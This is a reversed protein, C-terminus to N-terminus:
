DCPLPTNEINFFSNNRYSFHWWETRITNFGSSRMGDFLLTRNQNIEDSLNQNDIHAKPGFHDFDTGMNVYCGELTVLTIDVAAGRNHISGLENPNAVYTARPVKSWMKMQIDLPRYCDYIKIRYGNECFYQNALILAKVVEPRLLCKPCEYLKEGVFNNTTAYRIEYEFETSIIELDILDTQAKVNSLFSFIGILLILPYQVTHSNLKKRRNLRYISKEIYMSQVLFFPHKHM